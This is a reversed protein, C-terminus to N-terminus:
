ETQQGRQESSCDEREKPRTQPKRPGGAERRCVKEKRKRETKMGRPYRAIDKQVREVKEWEQRLRNRNYESECNVIRHLIAQNAQAIEMHERHRKEANLSKPTYNNWNEVRGNSRMIDALKSSLIQNDRMIVALRDEQLQLKKLKVQLHAPTPPGKTDVVAIAKQVQERHRQYDNKDWKQQLYKNSTAMIPQYARHM